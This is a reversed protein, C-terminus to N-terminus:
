LCTVKSTIDLIVPILKSIKQGDPDDALKVFIQRFNLPGFAPSLIKGMKLGHSTKTAMAVM